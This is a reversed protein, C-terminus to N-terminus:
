QIERYEWWTAHTESSSGFGDLRKEVVCMWALGRSTRVPWLAFHPQWHTQTIDVESGAVAADILAARRVRWRTLVVEDYWGNMLVMVVFLVAAAAGYAMPTLLWAKGPAVLAAGLLMGGSSCVLGTMSNRYFGFFILSAFGVTLIGPLLDIYQPYM